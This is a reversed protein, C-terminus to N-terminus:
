KFLGTAQLLSTIEVKAAGALSPDAISKDVAQSIAADLDAALVGKVVPALPSANIKARVARPVTFARALGHLFQQFM